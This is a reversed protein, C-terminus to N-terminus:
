RIREYKYGRNRIFRHFASGISSSNIIAKYVVEPIGEYQYVAGNRHFEVEMTETNKDYGIEKINSSVVPKRTM